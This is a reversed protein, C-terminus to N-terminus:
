SSAHHADWSEVRSQQWTRALLYLPKDLSVAEPKRNKFFSPIDEGHTMKCIITKNSQKSQESDCDLPLWRAQVSPSVYDSLLRGKWLCCNVPLVTRHGHAGYKEFSQKANNPGWQSICLCRWIADNTDADNASSITGWKRQAEQTSCKRSIGMVRCKNQYSCYYSDWSKQISFITLINSSYKCFKQPFLM